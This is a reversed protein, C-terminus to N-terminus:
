LESGEGQIRFKQCAFLCLVSCVWFGQSGVGEVGLDYTSVIAGLRLRVGLGFGWLRFGLDRGSACCCCRLLALRLGLFGVVM